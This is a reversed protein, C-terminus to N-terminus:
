RVNRLEVEFYWTERGKKVEIQRRPGFGTPMPGPKDDGTARYAVEPPVTFRRRGGKRMGRIAQDFGPIAKTADGVKYIFPDFDHEASSDVFYGRSDRLVWQFSVTKGEEAPESKTGEVIDLVRVGSPLTRFEPLKNETSSMGRFEPEELSSAAEAAWPLAGGVSLALSGALFDRRVPASAKLVVCSGRCSEVSTSSFPLGFLASLARFAVM